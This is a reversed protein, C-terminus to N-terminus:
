NITSERMSSECAEGPESGSRSPQVAGKKLHAEIATRISRKSALPGIACSYTLSQLSLPAFLFVFEIAPLYLNTLQYQAQPSYLYVLVTLAVHMANGLLQAQFFLILWQTRWVPFPRAQAADVAEDQGAADHGILTLAAPSGFSGRLANASAFRDDGHRPSSTHRSASASAGGEDDDYLPAAATIRLDGDLEDILCNVSGIAWLGVFCVAWTVCIGIVMVPDNADTPSGLTLVTTDKCTQSQNQESCNSRQTPSLSTRCLPTLGFLGSREERFALLSPEYQEDNSYLPIGSYYPMATGTLLQALAYALSYVIIIILWPTTELQVVKVLLEDITSVLHPLPSFADPWEMGNAECQARLVRTFKLYRARRKRQHQVRYKRSCLHAYWEFVEYTGSWFRSPALQQESLAVVDATSLGAIAQEIKSLMRIVLRRAIVLLGVLLLYTMATTFVFMHVFEILERIDPSLGSYSTVAFMTFSLLGLTALEAKIRELLKETFSSRHGIHELLEFTYEIAASIAVLSLLIILFWEVFTNCLDLCAFWPIKLPECAAEAPTLATLDLMESVENLLQPDARLVAAIEEASPEGSGSETFGM